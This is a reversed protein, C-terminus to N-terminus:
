SLSAESITCGLSWVDSQMTPQLTGDSILLERATWRYREPICAYQKVRRLAADIGVDTLVVTGHDNVRFNHQSQFTFPHKLNLRFDSVGHLNGHVTGDTHLAAVATIAQNIKLRRDLHAGPGCLPSVTSAMSFMTMGDVPTHREIFSIIDGNAYYPVIIAMLDKDFHTDIFSAVNLHNLRSCAEV